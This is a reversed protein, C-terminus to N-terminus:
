AADEEILIAGHRVMVRSFIEFPILPMNAQREHEMEEPTYTIGQVPSIAPTNKGTNTWVTTGVSNTMGPTLNADAGAQEIKMM